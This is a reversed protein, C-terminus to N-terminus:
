DTRRFLGAVNYGILSFFVTILLLLFPDFLKISGNLHLFEYVLMRHYRCIGWISVVALAGLIFGASIKFKDHVPSKFIIKDAFSMGFTGGFPFGLFYIIYFVSELSMPQIGCFDMLNAVVLFVFFICISTAFAFIAGM